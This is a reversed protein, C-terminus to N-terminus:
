DVEEPRIGLPGYNTAMIHHENHPLPPARLAETWRSFASNSSERYYVDRLTNMRELYVGETIEGQEMQEELAEREATLAARKARQGATDASNLPVDLVVTTYSELGSTHRVLTSRHRGFAVSRQTPTRNLADQADVFSHIRAHRPDNPGEAQAERAARAAGAEASVRLVSALEAVTAATTQQDLETQLRPWVQRVRVHGETAQEASERAHRARDVARQAARFDDSTHPGNGMQLLVADAEIEADELGDMMREARQHATPMTLMEEDWRRVCRLAYAWIPVSWESAQPRLNALTDCMLSRVRNRMNPLSTAPGANRDLTLLLQTVETNRHQQACIGADGPPDFFAPVSVLFELWLRDPVDAGRYPDGLRCRAPYRARLIAIARYWQFRLRWTPQSPWGRQRAWAMRWELTPYVLDRLIGSNTADHLNGHGEAAVDAFIHEIMDDRTYQALTANGAQGYESATEALRAWDRPQPAWGPRPVDEHLLRSRDLAQEAQEVAAQADALVRDSTDDNRAEESRRYRRAREREREREREVDEEDPILNRGLNSFRAFTFAMENRRREEVSPEEEHSQREAPEELLRNGGGYSM